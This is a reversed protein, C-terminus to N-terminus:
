QDEDVVKAVNKCIEKFNGQYDPWLGTKVNYCYEAEQRDAEEIDSQGVIGMLLIIFAAILWNNLRNSM